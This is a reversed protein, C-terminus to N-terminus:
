ADMKAERENEMMLWSAVLEALENDRAFESFDKYDTLNALNAILDNYLAQAIGSTRRRVMHAMVAETLDIKTKYQM